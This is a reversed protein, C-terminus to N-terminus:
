APVALTVVPRKPVRQKTRRVLNLGLTRCVRYVRKYNWPHGLARLRVYCKWFGWRTHQAVVANRAAIIPTHVTAKAVAPTATQARYCATRSCPAIQCARQVPRAHAQTLITVM